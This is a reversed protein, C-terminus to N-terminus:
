TKEYLISDFDQLNVSHTNEAYKIKCYINKRQLECGVGNIIKDGIALLKLPQKLTKNQPKNEEIM